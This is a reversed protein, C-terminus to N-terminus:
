TGGNRPLQIYVITGEPSGPEAWIRGNHRDIIGASIALGLGTGHAKTTYFPEFIKERLAPDLAVGSNWIRVVVDGNEADSTKLEIRGGPPTADVANLLVNLIVQGLQSADAWLVHQGAEYHAELDIGRTRAQAQVLNVVRGAVEELSTHSREPESPRAFQVMRLVLAHIKDIEGLVVDLDEGEASETSARDRLTQILVKITTLPNNVEHAVAAAMTGVSALRDAHALSAESQRVRATLRSILGYLLAASLLVFFWGKYLGVTERRASDTVLWSVLEDSLQIWGAALIAYILVIQLPSLQSEWRIFRKWVYNEIILDSLLSNQPIEANFQEAVTSWPAWQYLNDVPLMTKSGLTVDGYLLLPLFFFSVIIFFDVSYKKM